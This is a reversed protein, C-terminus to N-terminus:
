PYHIRGIAEPPIFGRVLVEADRTANYVAQPDTLVGLNSPQTLDIVPVSVKSLDIEVIPTANRSYSLAADFDRTTSVFPSPKIGLIHETATIHSDPGTPSLGQSLATRREAPHLRRFVIDSTNKTAGSPAIELRKSALNVATPSKRGFVRGITKGSWERASTTLSTAKAWVRTGTFAGWAKTALMGIGHEAMAVSAIPAAPFIASWEAGPDNINVQMLDFLESVTGVLTNATFTSFNALEVIPVEWFKTCYYYPGVEEYPMLATQWALGPPLADIELGFPDVQNVPDGGCFATLNLGGAEGLPDATLWKCAKADYYRHGFYWFGTEPDYYKSQFGFPCSGVLPGDASILQGYPAYDYEAVVAPQALAVSNTMAAVLSHVTGIHDSIPLLINTSTGSVETVALLGGIGGSEQEWTGSQLGALDLGWTYDRTTVTGSDAVVERVLNWRDYLYQNTCAAVWQQNTWLSVVKRARRGDPYYDYVARLRPAGVKDTVRRLRNRADFLYEALSDSVVAGALATGIEEPCAPIRLAVSRRAVWEEDDGTIRALLTINTVHAPSGEALPLSYLFRPGDRLAPRGDVLVQADARAVGVIDVANWRRVTHFDLDDAGFVARGQGNTDARGARVVNGAEDHAYAFDRTADWTGDARRRRATALRGDADYGIETRSGDGYVIAAIRNTGPGRLLSFSSSPLIFSSPHPTWTLNTRLGLSRNWANSLTLAPTGGVSLSVSRNRYADWAYAACVAGDTLNTVRGAADRAYALGHDPVVGHGAIATHRPTGDLDRTFSEALGGTFSNTAVYGMRDFSTLLSEDALGPVTGATAVPDGGADYQVTLSAGGARTLSEPQGNARWTYSEVTQGNIEKRLLRGTQPHRIWSTVVPQGNRRTTLSKLRAASDWELECPPERSAAITRPLGNPHYSLTRYEGRGTISTPLATGPLYELEVAGEDDTVGLLRGALDFTAQLTGDATSTLEASLGDAAHSVATASVLAGLADRQEAAALGLPGYTHTATGGPHALSLTFAGPGTFPSRELSVMRGCTELTARRGDRSSWQTLFPTETGDGAATFVGARNTVGWHNVTRHFRAMRDSGGPELLSGDGGRKVGAREIGIREDHDLIRVVGAADTLRWPRGAQDYEITASEALGARSISVAQGLTNYGIRVWEATPTGDSELVTITHCLRGDVVSWASSHCRRAGSGYISHLTGDRHYGAIIDGHGTRSITAQWGDDTATYSWQTVGAGSELRVPRDMLDRVIRTTRVTGGQTVTYTTDLGLPDSTVVTVRGVDPEEIRKVRGFADYQLLCTTGDRRRVTQPGWLCWDANTVATGDSFVTVLPRGAQDQAVTQWSRIPLASSHQYEWNEPVPDFREEVSVPFGVGNVQLRYQRGDRHFLEVGLDAPFARFESAVSLHQVVTGLGLQGTNSLTQSRHRVVNTAITDAAQWTTAVDGARRFVQAVTAPNQSFFVYTLPHRAVMLRSVLAGGVLRTETCPMAVPNTPNCALGEHANYDYLTDVTLGRWSESRGLPWGTAPAPDFTAVCGSTDTRSVPVADRPVGSVYRGGASDYTWKEFVTNGGTEFGRRTLRGQGNFQWFETWAGGAAEFAIRAETAEGPQRWSQLSETAAAHVITGAAANITLSSAEAGCGQKTLGSVRGSDDRLVRTEVTNTGNLSFHVAHLLNNEYTVRARALNGSDPHGTWIESTRTGEGHYERQCHLQRIGYYEGESGPAKKAPAHCHGARGLAALASMGAGPAPAFAHYVGDAFCLQWTTSDFTYTRESDMGVPFGVTSFTNNTWPFDFVVLRGNPRLVSIKREHRDDTEISRAEVVCTNLNLHFFPSELPSFMGGDGYYLSYAAGFLRYPLGEGRGSNLEAHVPLADEIQPQRGLGIRIYPQHWDPLYCASGYPELPDLTGRLTNVIGDLDTDPPRADPTAALPLPTEEFPWELVWFGNTVAWGKQRVTADNKYPVTTIDAGTFVINTSSSIRSYCKVYRDTVLGTIEPEWQGAHGVSLPFGPMGGILYLTRKSPMNTYCATNQRIRRALRRAHVYATASSASTCIPSYSDIEEDSLHKESFIEFLFRSLVFPSSQSFPSGPEAMVAMGSAMWINEYFYNPTIPPTFYFRQLRDDSQNRLRIFLRYMWPKHGSAPTNWGLELTGSGQAMYGGSTMHNWISEASNTYPVLASWDPSLEAIESEAAAHAWSEGYWTVNTSANTAAMGWGFGEWVIQRAYGDAAFPEAEVSTMKLANIATTVNTQISRDCVVWSTLLGDYWNTFGCYEHLTKPTWCPLENTTALWDDFCGSSDANTHVLYRGCIGDIAAALRMYDQFPYVLSPKALYNTSFNAALCRDVVARYCLDLHNTLSRWEPEDPWGSIGYPDDASARLGGALCAAALAALIAPFRIRTHKRKQM